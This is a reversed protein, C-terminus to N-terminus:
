GGGALDDEVSKMWTQQAQEGEPPHLWQLDDDAGSWSDDDSSPDASEWTDDDADQQQGATESAAPGAQRRPLDATATGPAASHGVPPNRAMRLSFGGAALVIAAAAVLGAWRWWSTHLVRGSEGPARQAFAALRELQEASAQQQTADFLDQCSREEAEFNFERSM